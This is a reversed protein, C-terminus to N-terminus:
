ISPRTNRPDICPRLSDSSDCRHDAVYLWDRSSGLRERTISVLAAVEPHILAWGLFSPLDFM